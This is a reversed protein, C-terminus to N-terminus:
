TREPKAVIITGTKQEMSRLLQEPSAIIGITKGPKSEAFKTAAEVKPLMSGHAFQDEAIYQRAEVSTIKELKIQNSKGYNLYAYPVATVSVFIEAGVLEALLEAALDKDIVADVGQLIKRRSNYIVPIGGGGVAIVIAGSQVLDVIQEAEVIDTPRPSPVVRRYGRGADERMAWGKQESLYQATQQDYFQGIPKTPNAFASDNAAVLVQTIVTAARRSRGMKLFANDIAQALWYGIQGQSMAVATELPMAPAAETAANEEHLLINGVQPGNGHAVIVEYRESLQAIAAGVKAAVRKQAEATSEGNQQLANGGLAVVVRQRKKSGKYRLGAPKAEM